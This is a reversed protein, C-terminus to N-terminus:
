PLDSFQPVRKDMFSRVGEAFDPSNILALQGTLETTLSERLTPLTSLNFAHKTKAFAATPGAALRAILDDVAADYEDDAAVSSILGWDLATPASIREALFAM